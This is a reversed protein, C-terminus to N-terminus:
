ALTAKLAIMLANFPQHPDIPDPGLAFAFKLYCRM